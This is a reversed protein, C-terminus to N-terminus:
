PRRKAFSPRANKCEMACLLPKHYVQQPRLSMTSKQAERRYARAIYFLMTQVDNCSKSPYHQSNQFQQLTTSLMAAVTLTVGVDCRSAVGLRQRAYRRGGVRTLRRHVAGDRRRSIPRLAAVGISDFDGRLLRATARAKTTCRRDSTQGTVDDARGPENKARTPVHRALGAAGKPTGAVARRSSGRDGTAGSRKAESM